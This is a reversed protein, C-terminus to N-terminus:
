ASSHVSVSYRKKKSPSSCATVLQPSPTEECSSSSITESSSGPLAGSLVSIVLVNM